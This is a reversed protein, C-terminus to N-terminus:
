NSEHPEEEVTNQDPASDPLAGGKPERYFRCRFTTKEVFRDFLVLLEPLLLLVLAVSIIAGRGLLMGITSIIPVSSIGGILFGAVIFIGGSTVITPFAANMAFVLSEKRGATRRREMYRNTLVIGYDITAGMQICILILYGVFFIGEGAVASIAMNIWIAGQIVAVLIVPVAVSRFALLVILLISLVSVLTINRLDGKFTERIDYLSVSDGLVYGDFDAHNRKLMARLQEVFSFAEDSAKPLDVSFLIRMVGENYLLRVQENEELMTRVAYLKYYIPNGTLGFFEMGQLADLLNFYLEDLYIQESDYDLGLTSLLARVDAESGYAALMPKVDVTSFGTVNKVATKGDVMISRIEEILDNGLAVNVSALADVNPRYLIVLNNQEGFTEMIQANEVYIPDSHNKTAEVSYTYTTYTQLVAAAVFIVALIVPVVKRARFSFDSLRNLRPLLNKHRTKEIPKSFLLILSPMLLFVCLMSMIIGKALVIGIDFGITFQMFVLSLLGAITTLSSSSISVISQSLAIAMAEKRDETRECEESYRHLLIISYDMALALQLIACITHSIFSITGLIFNTGMNLVIAVIVTLLFVVPEFWSNSTLMLIILVIAFAIGLIMPMEGAIAEQIYMTDLSSGNVALEYESLAARLEAVTDVTEQSANGTNFFVQFLANGDKYYDEKSADFNVGRVNKTGAIVASIEEAQERTVNKAMIQATGIDGFSNEMLDLSIRTESDPPLYETFDYNVNVLGMCFIGGVFLAIFLAMFLYRYRVIWRSFKLM